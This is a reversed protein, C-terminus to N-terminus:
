KTNVYEKLVSLQFLTVQLFGYFSFASGLFVHILTSMDCSVSIM